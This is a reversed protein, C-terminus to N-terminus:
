KDDDSDAEKTCQSELEHIRDRLAACQEYEQRMICDSLQKRLQEIERERRGNESGEAPIKGTHRTKGHIRQISPLLRDYFTTYCEPCGARGSQAIESFYARLGQCHVTDAQQCCRRNLLFAEGSTASISGASYVARTGAQSRLGRM